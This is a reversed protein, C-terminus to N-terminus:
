RIVAIDLLHPLPSVLHRLGPDTEAQLCPFAAKVSSSGAILYLDAM